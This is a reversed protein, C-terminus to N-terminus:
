REIFWGLRDHWLSDLLLTCVFVLVSAGGMVVVHQQNPIALLDFKNGHYQIYEGHSHFLPDTAPGSPWNQLHLDAILWLVHMYSLSLHWIRKHVYALLYCLYLHMAICYHFGSQYKVCAQIHLLRHIYCISALKICYCKWSLVQLLFPHVWAEWSSGKYAMQKLDQSGYAQIGLWWGYLLVWPGLPAMKSALRWSGHLM